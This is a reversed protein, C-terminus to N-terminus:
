AQQNTWFSWLRHHHFQDNQWLDIGAFGDCPPLAHLTHTNIGGLAIVKQQLGRKLQLFKVRGLSPKGPHSRTSFLPSLLVFDANKCAIGERRNHVAQSRLLPRATRKASLAGHVGDAKWAAALQPTGALFLVLKRKKTIQRIKEFLSKRITFPLRYHRFVVASGRPLRKIADILGNELREDTMLWLRPWANKSNNNM